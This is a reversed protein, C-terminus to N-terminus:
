SVEDMAVEAALRKEISEILEAIWPEKDLDDAILHLPGRLGTRACGEHRGEKTDPLSGADSIQSTTGRPSHLNPLAGLREPV